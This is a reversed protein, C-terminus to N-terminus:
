IFTVTGLRAYEDEAVVVPDDVDLVSDKYFRIANTGSITVRDVDDVATVISIVDSRDIDEGLGKAALSEENSTTGGDFFAALDASIDARVDAQTRVGFYFVELDIGIVTQTAQRFLVDAGPVTFDEDSDVLRQADAIAQDIRYTVTLTEGVVGGSVTITTVARTSGSVASTTDILTVAALAGSASGVISIVSEVPQNSLTYVTGDGEHYIREEVMQVNKGIVYIDIAGAHARTMLANTPDVVAADQFSLPSDEATGMAVRKWGAVTQLNRGKRVEEIRAILQADTEIDAGTTLLTVNSTSSAQSIQPAIIRLSALAINGTTGGVTVTVVEEAYYLGTVTDLVPIQPASATISALVSGDALKVTTGVPITLVNGSNDDTRFFRQMYRAAVAVRRTVGFTSAFDDLDASILTDVDDASDLDLAVRLDEKFDDDTLLSEISTLSKFINVYDVLVYSYRFEQGPADVVIDRIVHGQQVDMQSNISRITTAIRDRVVQLENADRIKGM